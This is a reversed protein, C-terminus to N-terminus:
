KAATRVPTKNEAVQCILSELLESIVNIDTRGSMRVTKAVPDDTLAESRTIKKLSTPNDNSVERASPKRNLRSVVRPPLKRPATNPHETSTKGKDHVLLSAPDSVKQENATSM